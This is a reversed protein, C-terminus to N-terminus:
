RGEGDTGVTYSFLRVSRLLFRLRFPTGGPVCDHERWRVGHRVSDGLLPICDAAGYGGIAKGGATLVEVRVEGGEADANVSLRGGPCELPVTEVVGGAAGADLSVFGDMRWSARAVTIVKEPLYGGHTTTIATYYFWVEDGVVVPWNTVGLICGADYAYPGNPIAPTRRETREWRRGDRSHVLHVDIPGDDPSQAPGSETPKGTYRFQTVFGLFQGGYPFASMNYFEAWRGGDAKTQADDMADPALVLAPRSWNRMDSSTSLYVLRRPHGRHERHLKHFALYEGTYPNRALTCTDGGPLVPNGEYERWELGDASHAVGYGKGGQHGLMKYRQAPEPEEGDFIVSPSHFSAPLINTQRDDGFAVLGLEPRDWHVGDSSTAYLVRAMRNYWMRFQGTQPDRLVTGYTYVRRDDGGGEWPKETELVPGPLKRCAHVTRRVGQRHAILADDVFIQPECGVPAPVDDPGYAEIEIVRAHGTPTRTIDLKLRATTVAPFRLDNCQEPGSATNGRVTAATEWGKGDWTQVTYDNVALGRRGPYGTWIRVRQITQAEPWRLTLWHTDGQDSVWRGEVTFRGDVANAAPFPHKRFESSAEARARKALNSGAPVPRGFSPTAFEGDRAKRDLEDLAFRVSVVSHKEPGSTYKIYTTAVFTGDPLCEVGPYGCDKGAHSHLLKVRYHGESGTVIDHHTGVWAVFHHRTPSTAATDRFCVVLRGDPAYRATHRDGSLDAPLQRAESWTRGEDGSTMMWSNIARNNERMLCLLRAGDPSRILAPESPKCGPIDLVIRWEGWTLGGDASVSQAVVNSYQEETEGPRRINTMGLLRKGGDIPVITCLPMVCVLGNPAMPTWTGGGDESHSQHMSGGPGQGAFVLLRATGDPAVLRYIAPCNRVETWNAPVPLLDSWTRGGDDSRKMPGCPGGHNLTWVCYITRGDPMLVTSPHGQYVSETGRAVVVHRDTEQSLDITPLRVTRDGPQPLPMTRAESNHGFGACVCLALSLIRILDHPPNTMPLRPGDDM